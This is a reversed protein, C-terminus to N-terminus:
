QSARGISNADPISDPPEPPERLEVADMSGGCLISMGYLRDAGGKRAGFHSWRTDDGFHRCLWADGDGNTPVTGPAVRELCLCGKSGHVVSPGPLKAAAAPCSFVHLCPHQGAYSGRGAPAAAGSTTPAGRGGDIRTSESWLELGPNRTMADWASLFACTGNCSGVVYSVDGAHSGSVIPRSRIGAHKSVLRRGPGSGPLDETVYRGM